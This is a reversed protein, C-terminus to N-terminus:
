NGNVGLASLRLDREEEKKKEERESSADDECSRARKEDSMQKKISSVQVWSALFSPSFFLSLSIGLFFLVTIAIPQVPNSRKYHSIVVSGQFWISM